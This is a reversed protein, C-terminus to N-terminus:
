RTAPSDYRYTFSDIDVFGTEATDNYSFLGIRDGRYNGWGLQYQAGFPIFTV